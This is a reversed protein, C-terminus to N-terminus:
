FEYKAEWSESIQWGNYRPYSRIVKIIDILRESSTLLDILREEGTQRNEMLIMIHHIKGGNVNTIYDREVPPNTIYDVILPPKANQWREAEDAISHHYDPSTVDLITM